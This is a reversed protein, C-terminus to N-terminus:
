RKPGDGYKARIRAGAPDFFPTQTVTAVIPRGASMIVLKAGPWSHTTRVYAMALVKNVSHGHVSVTVHGVLEGPTEADALEGAEPGSFRKSRFPAIDAVSYVPDDVNVPTKSELVLGVWRTDIGTDQWRLLADRGNFERKDFRIWRDLGVHFPTVELHIDKGYLPLAKEVRLSNMAMVGYPQLGFDRGQTLLFEWLGAVEDAPTYLEYGLEGTYGSRSLIVNVGNVRAPTFRFFRLREVDGEDLVSQLLDRSRPGQVVPLAIGTSIDTVYTSTGLAHESVWHYTQARPGSSTVIMFHEDNFKYVTVDDVVYGDEDCMTSYRLQGPEMGLVDNVLLRNILREAGPGKVDIEGMSSLDQMGANTRVNSHEDQPSTYSVPFMYEGGGKVLRGAHRLHYDYLPSRREAM